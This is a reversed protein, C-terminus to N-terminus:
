IKYFETVLAFIYTKNIVRSLMSNERIDSQM